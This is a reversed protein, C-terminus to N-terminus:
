ERGSGGNYLSAVDSATLVDDYIRVDDITGDFVGYSGFSGGVKM